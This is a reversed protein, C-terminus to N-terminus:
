YFYKIIFDRQLSIVFCSQPEKYCGQVRKGKIACSLQILHGFLVRQVSYESESM